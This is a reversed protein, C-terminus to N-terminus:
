DMEITKIAAALVCNARHEYSYVPHYHLAGTIKREANCERCIGDEWVNEKAFNLLFAIAEEKTM